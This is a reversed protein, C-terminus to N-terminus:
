GLRKPLVDKLKDRTHRICKETTAWDICADTVSIGYELDALNEPIDQRGDRINSEMMLGIISQNGEVIQNVVNELM